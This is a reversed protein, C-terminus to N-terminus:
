NDFSGIKIIQVQFIKCTVGLCAGSFIKNFAFCNANCLRIELKYLYIKVCTYM